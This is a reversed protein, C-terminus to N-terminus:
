RDHHVGGARAAPHVGTGWAADRRRWRCTRFVQPGTMVAATGPIPIGGRPARSAIYCVSLDKCVRYRITDSTVAAQQYKGEEVFSAFQTNADV